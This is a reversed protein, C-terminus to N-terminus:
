EVVSKIQLYFNKDANYSTKTATKTAGNNGSECTADIAVQDLEPGFETWTLTETTADYSTNKAANFHDHSSSSHTDGQATRTWTQCADQTQFVLDKNQDEYTGGNLIYVGVTVTYSNTSEVEEDDKNCSTFVLISLILLTKFNLLTRNLKINLKM